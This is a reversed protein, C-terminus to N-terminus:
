KAPATAPRTAAPATTTAARPAVIKKPVTMDKFISKKLEGKELDGGISGPLLLNVEAAPQAPTFTPVVAKGALENLAAGASNILGVAADHYGEPMAVGEKDRATQLAFDQQSTYSAIAALASVWKNLDAGTPKLAKAQKGIEDALTKSAEMTAVDPANKQMARAMAELGEILLDRKGLAILALVMQKKAVGSTEAELAKSVVGGGRSVSADGLTRASTTALEKLGKAGWYRVSPDKHAVMKLLADYSSVTQTQGLLMAANLKADPNTSDLVKTFADAIKEGQTNQDVKSPIESLNKLMQTRIEVAANGQAKEMKAAEAAADLPAAVGVGAMGVTWAAAFGFVAV